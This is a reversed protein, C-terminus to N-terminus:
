NCQLKRWCISSSNYMVLVLSVAENSNLVNYHM